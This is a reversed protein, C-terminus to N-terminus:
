PTFAFETAGSPPDFGISVMIVPCKASPAAVNGVDVETLRMEYDGPAFAPDLDLAQGPVPVINVTSWPLSPDSRAEILSHKLARQRPGPTSNKWTLRM